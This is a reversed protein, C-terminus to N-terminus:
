ISLISSGKKQTISSVSRNAGQLTEERLSSNITSNQSFESPTNKKHDFEHTPQSKLFQDIISLLKTLKPATQDTNKNLIEEIQQLRADLFLHNYSKTSNEKANDLFKRLAFAGQSEILDRCYLLIMSLSQYRLATILFLNPTKPDLKSTIYDRLSLLDKKYVNNARKKKLLKNRILWNINDHIMSTLIASIELHYNDSVVPHYEINTDYVYPFVDDDREEKSIIQEVFLNACVEKIKDENYGPSASLGLVLPANNKEESSYFRSSIRTYSYDKVARHAEDYVILYFDDKKLFNNCLDNDVLEPTAFYVRIGSSNWLVKRIEAATKKNLRIQPTIM